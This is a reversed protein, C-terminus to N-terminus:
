KPVFSKLTLNLISTLKFNLLYTSLINLSYFQGNFSTQRANFVRANRLAHHMFLSSKCFCVRSVRSVRGVRPSSNVHEHAMLVRYLGM